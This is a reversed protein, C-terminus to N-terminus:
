IQLFDLPESWSNQNESFALTSTGLVEKESNALLAIPDDGLPKKLKYFARAKATVRFANVNQGSKTPNWTRRVEVLDRGILDRVAKGVTKTSYGLEAAIEGYNRWQWKLGPGISMGGKMQSWFAIISFVWASARPVGNALATARLNDKSQLDTKKTM